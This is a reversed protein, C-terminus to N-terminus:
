QARAGHPDQEDAVDDTPGAAVQDLDADGREDLM